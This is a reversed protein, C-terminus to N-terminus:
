QKRIEKYHRRIHRLMQDKTTLLHSHIDGKHINLNIPTLREKILLLLIKAYIM